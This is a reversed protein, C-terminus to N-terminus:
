TTAFSMALRPQCHLCVGAPRGPLIGAPVCAPCLRVPRALPRQTRGRQQRGAGSCLQDVAGTCAPNGARRDAGAARGAYCVRPQHHGM